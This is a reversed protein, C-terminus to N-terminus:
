VDICKYIYINCVSYFFMTFNFQIHMKKKNM